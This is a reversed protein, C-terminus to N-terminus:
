KEKFFHKEILCVINSLALPDLRDIKKRFRYLLKIFDFKYKTDMKLTWSPCNNWSKFLVTLYAISLYENPLVTHLCRDKNKTEPPIDLCLPKHILFSRIYLAAIKHRDLHSTSAFEKYIENKLLRASEHYEKVIIGPKEKTGVYEDKYRLFRGGAYKHLNKLVENCLNHIDPLWEDSGFEPVEEAM